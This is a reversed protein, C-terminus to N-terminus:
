PFMIVEGLDGRLAGRRTLETIVLKGKARDKRGSVLQDLQLEATQPSVGIYHGVMLVDAEALTINSWVVDIGLTSPRDHGPEKGSPPLSQPEPKVQRSGSRGRM